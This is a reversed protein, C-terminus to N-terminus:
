AASNKDFSEKVFFLGNRGWGSTTDVEGFGDTIEWM